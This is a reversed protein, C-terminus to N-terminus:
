RAHRAHPHASREPKRILWLAVGAFFVPVSLFQTTSLVGPVLEGREDWRFTDLFARSAAHLMLFLAAGRGPTAGRRAAAGLLLFLLLASLAEYAQVPHLRMELLSGEGRLSAARAEVLAPTGDQFATAPVGWPVDTPRGFQDGALLPAIWGIALGLCAARALLDLFSFGKMEVHRPLWWALWLLGALLAGYWVLGGEWIYLFSLPRKTFKEYFVLAYLLRAGAIGLFLLAFAVNFVRDSDLSLRSTARRRLWGAAVLFAVVLVPGFTYLAITKGFLPFEVVKNWV